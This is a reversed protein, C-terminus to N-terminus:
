QCPIEKMNPIGEKEPHEFLLGQEECFSAVTDMLENDSIEGSCWALIRSHFGVPIKIKEFYDMLNLMETRPREKKPAVKKKLEEEGPRKIKIKIPGSFGKERKEKILAASILREQPDKIAYLDLVNQPSLIKAAALDQLEDPLKLLMMRTRVWGQPKQIKKAVEQISLGMRAMRAVANAEQLMNLDERQINESFNIFVAELPTIDEVIAKITERELLRHALTRRFGSVLVFPLDTNDETYSSRVLVPQHLGEDQINQALETVTHPAIKGRCNRKEDVLFKDLPLDYVQGFKYSEMM